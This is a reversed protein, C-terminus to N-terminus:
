AAAVALLRPHDQRLGLRANGADRLPFTHCPLACLPFLSHDLSRPLLLEWAHRGPLRQSDPSGFGGLVLMQAPLRSSDMLVSRFPRAAGNALLVALFLPRSFCDPANDQGSHQAPPIIGPRTRDTHVAVRRALGLLSDNSGCSIGSHAVAARADHWCGFPVNRWLVYAPLSAGSHGHAHLPRPGHGVDYLAGRNCSWQRNFRSGGCCWSAGMGENRPCCGPGSEM